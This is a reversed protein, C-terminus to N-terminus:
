GGRGERPFLIATGTSAIACATAYAISCGTATSTLSITIRWGSLLESCDLQLTAHDANRKPFGGPWKPNEISGGSWMTKM